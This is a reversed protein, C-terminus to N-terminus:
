RQYGLVAKRLTMADGPHARSDFGANYARIGAAVQGFHAIDSNLLNGAFTTAFNIDFAKIEHISPHAGLDIQFVGRGLGGGVESINSFNTERVGIAALIPWNSGAANQLAPQAAYARSIAAQNTKAAAKGAKCGKFSAIHPGIQTGIEVPLGVNVLSAIDWNGYYLYLTLDGTSTPGARM